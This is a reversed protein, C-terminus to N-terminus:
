LFCADGFAWSSIFLFLVGVGNRKHLYLMPQIVYVFRHADHGKMGRTKFNAIENEPYFCFVSETFHRDNRRGIKCLYTKETFMVSM